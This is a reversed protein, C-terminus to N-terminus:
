LTERTVKEDTDGSTTEEQKEARLFAGNEGYVEWCGTNEPIREDEVQIKVTFDAKARFSELFQGLHVIRAM